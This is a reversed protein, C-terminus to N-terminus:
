IEKFAAGFVEATFFFVETKPNKWADAALGAKHSCCYSLFEEKTWGTEEVVQPLFCGACPGRRIYIGDVGLRLSLPDATKKLLSLVSIEISVKDLEEATLPPFRPDAIAAAVAMEQVVRYLPTDEAEMRGICGRLSARLGTSPDGNEELTVFAGAPRTLAPDDTRYDPIRGTKLCEAIAARALKLLEAQQAETLGPLEQRWFMVAGYGVVQGPDGYPSDASNAYRLITVKDAELGRAVRMAALIPGEGCACTALNPVGAAM